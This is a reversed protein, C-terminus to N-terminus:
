RSWGIEPGDREVGRDRSRERLLERYQSRAREREVVLERQRVQLEPNNVQIGRDVALRLAREEFDASGRITVV